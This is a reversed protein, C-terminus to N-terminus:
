KYKDADKKWDEAIRKYRDLADPFERRWKVAADEYRQAAEAASIDGISILQASAWVESEIQPVYHENYTYNPKEVAWKAMLKDAATMIDLTVKDSAQIAGSQEYLAAIREKTHLFRIFDAAVEPHKSLKAIGLPMTYFPMLGALKGPNPPTPSIMVSVSDEGMEKIYGNVMSQVAFVMGVKGNLFKDNGEAFGVSAADENFLGKDILEEIRYWFNAHKPDTFHQIGMVAEHLDSMDDLNQIGVLCAWWVGMYGDKFGCSFPTYGGTKIKELAGVFDNWQQPPNNPNLGTERYIKPNLVTLWAGGYLPVLWTHGDWSLERRSFKTVHELEEASWYDDIPVINGAESGDMGQQRGFLQIDPPTGAALEAKWTTFLDEIPIEPAEVTINPNQQHYLETSEKMWAAMGPAEGDGWWYCRIEIKEAEQGGGSFVPTIAICLWGFLAIVLLWKKGNM